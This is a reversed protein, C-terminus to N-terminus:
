RGWVEKFITLLLAAIGTIFAGWFMLKIRSKEDKKEASSKMLWEVNVTLRELMKNHGKVEQAIDKLSVFIEKVMFKEDSEYKKMRYM